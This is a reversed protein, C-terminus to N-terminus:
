SIILNPLMTRLLQLDLKIWDSLVDSSYAKTQNLYGHSKDPKRIYDEWSKTCSAIFVPQMFNAM